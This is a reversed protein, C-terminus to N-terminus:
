RSFFKAVPLQFGPMADVGDFIDNETLEIRIGDSGHVEITRSRPDVYVVLRVGATLYGAIKRRQLGPRESPSVIEVVIDPVVVSYGDKASDAPVREPRIYAVDPALVTDPDVHLIFGSDAGTVEGGHADAYNLFHWGIWFMIQAHRYNNPSLRILEGKVLIYRNGDEAAHALDDATMLRTMAM